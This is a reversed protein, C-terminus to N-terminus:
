EADGRSNAQAARMRITEVAKGSRVIARIQGMPDAAPASLYFGGFENELLQDLRHYPMLGLDWEM